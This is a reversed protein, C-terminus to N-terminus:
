EGTTKIERHELFGMEYFLESVWWIRKPPFSSVPSLLEGGGAGPQQGKSANREEPTKM